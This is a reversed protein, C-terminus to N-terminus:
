PAQCSPCNKLACSNLASANALAGPYQTYCRADCTLDGPACGGLCYSLAYGESTGVYAAYQTACQMVTCNLCPSAMSDCASPAGCYVTVCTGLPAWDARGTPYQKACAEECAAPGIPAAADGVGADALPTSACPIICNLYGVCDPNFQCNAKTLCCYTQECVDCPGNTASLPPCNQHLIDGADWHKVPSGAEVDAGADLGAEAGPGTELGAEARTGTEASASDEEYAGGEDDLGTTAGGDEGAAADEFCEACAAGPGLTMCQVWENEALMGSSSSGRPCAAECTKSVNGEPGIPCADVCALYKTCDPDATCAMRASSCATAVCQGCGSAGYSPVSADNHLDEKPATSDSEGDRELATADSGSDGEPSSTASDAGCACLISLLLVHALRSIRTVQAGGVLTVTCSM